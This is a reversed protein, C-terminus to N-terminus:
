SAQTSVANKGFRLQKGPISSIKTPINVTFSKLLTHMLFLILTISLYLIWLTQNSNCYYHLAAMLPKTGDGCQKGLYTTEGISMVTFRM